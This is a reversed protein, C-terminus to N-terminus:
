LTWAFIKLLQAHAPRNAYFSSLRKTPGTERASISADIETCSKTFEDIEAGLCLMYQGIMRLMKISTHNVYGLYGAGVIYLDFDGTMAIGLHERLTRTTVSGGRPSDVSNATTFPIDRTSCFSATKSSLSYLSLDRANCSSQSTSFACVTASITVLGFAVVKWSWMLYM